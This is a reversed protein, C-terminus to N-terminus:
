AQCLCWAAMPALACTQESPGLVRVEYWRGNFDGWSRQEQIDLYHQINEDWVFLNPASDRYVAAMPTQTHCTIVSLDHQVELYGHTVLPASSRHASLPWSVDPDHTMVEIAVKLFRNGKWHHLQELYADRVQFSHLVEYIKTYVPSAWAGM